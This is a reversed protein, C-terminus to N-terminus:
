QVVLRLREHQPPTLGLLRSAESEIRHHSAWTSQELLLRSYEEELYWRRAELGQIQAYLGRSRHTSDIVGFASVLTLALLLAAVALLRWSGTM